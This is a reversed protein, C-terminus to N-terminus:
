NGILRKSNAEYTLHTLESDLFVDDFLNLIVWQNRSDYHLKEVGRDNVIEIPLNNQNITRRVDAMTINQLYPKGAINVLKAMKLPHAMCASQFEVFNEIPVSQHITALSTGAFTRMQDYYRFISHFNGKKFSFIHNRFLICDIREDFLFGPERLLEFRDGVVRVLINQSKALEKMKSYFSFCYVNEGSPTKAFLIYFRLDRTIEKEDMDFLEINVPNPMRTLLTSLWPTDSYKIWEIDNSDPKYGADYQLLRADNDQYNQCNIDIKKQILKRFEDSLSNGINFSRYNIQNADKPISGIGLTIPGRINQIGILAEFTAVADSSGNTM